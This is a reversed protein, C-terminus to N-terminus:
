FRKFVTLKKTKSVSSVQNSENISKKVRIQPQFSATSIRSSCWATTFERSLLQCVGSCVHAMQLETLQARSSSSLHFSFAVLMSTESRCPLDARACAAKLPLRSTRVVVKLKQICLDTIPYNYYNKEKVIVIVM